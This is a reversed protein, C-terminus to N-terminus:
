STASRSSNNGVKCDLKVRGVHTAKVTSEGTVPIEEPPQLPRVELMGELNGTLHQTSGSDVVWIGKQEKDFASFAMSPGSSTECGREKRQFDALRKRCDKKMHGPKGSYFCSSNAGSKDQNTTHMFGQAKQQAGQNGPSGKNGFEQGFNGFGPKGPFGRKLSKQKAAYAVAIEKEGQSEGALQRMNEEQQLKPLIAELKLGQDSALLITRITEFEARLGNL